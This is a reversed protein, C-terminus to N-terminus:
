IILAVCRTTQANYKKPQCDSFYLIAKERFHSREKPKKQIRKNFISTFMGYWQILSATPTTPSSGPVACQRIWARNFLAKLTERTNGTLSGLKWKSEQILKLLVFSVNLYIDLCNQSDLLPKFVLEFLIDYYHATLYCWRDKSRCIRCRWKHLKRYDQNCSQM